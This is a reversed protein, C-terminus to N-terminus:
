GLCEAHCIGRYNAGISDGPKLDQGCEKCPYGTADLQNKQSDRRDLEALAAANADQKDHMEDLDREMAALWEEADGVPELTPTRRRGAYKLRLMNVRAEAERALLDELWDAALEATKARGPWARGDEPGIPNVLRNALDQLAPILYNRLLDQDVDGQFKRPM